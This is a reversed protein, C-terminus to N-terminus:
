WGGGGGGGSSGGGGGGGGSSGSSPASVGAAMSGAAAVWSASAGGGSFGGGGGFGSWGGGSRGGDGSGAGLSTAYGAARTHSGGFSSFWRDMHKALGFAILYPFWEDKMQPEPQRLQNVFWARATALRRRFAIRELSERSRAQHFLSNALAFLLAALGSLAMASALTIGTVLVVLLAVLSIGWPVAFMAASAGVNHVRNRWVVAGILGLFYTIIIVGSGLVIIPGDAPEKTLATALLIIAVMFGILTPLASPKSPGKEPVLDEVIEKLPKRIKEAPNFGSKKYRQKISDTDTRRDHSEFLADVLTREYGHFRSRDALLELHLVPGKLFGGPKVESKMRGETVLRALVATVEAADTSNDWAAGIAEPLHKFVHEKLWKENIQEHPPLPQLRGNDRERAILRQALIGVVVLLIAAILWREFPKAGMSAEPGEGAGVFRLPVRVVFGEGPPINTARWEGGDPLTGQWRPDLELKVVFNEIVGDRDTFVFNHDLVWDNNEGHVLIRSYAYELVYTIATAAFSPDSPLRSRWRLTKSDVFDFEDIEDLDGKRMLQTGGGEGIRYMRGFEFRQRLGVNFRREGGNWDGTFVMTQRETIRLTGDGELRASVNLDRWHLTRQASAPVAILTLFAILFKM